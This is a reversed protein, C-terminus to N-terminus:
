LFKFISSVFTVALIAPAVFYVDNKFIEIGDHNSQYVAYGISCLSLIILLLNAIQFPFIPSKM